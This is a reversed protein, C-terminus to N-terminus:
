TVSANKICSELATVFLPEKVAVFLFCGVRDASISLLKLKYVSRDKSLQVVREM